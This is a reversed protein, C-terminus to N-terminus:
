RQLVYQEGCSLYTIRSGLLNRLKDYQTLGTCHMTLFRCEPFANLDAALRTIAADEETPSLGHRSLHMGGVVLTPTHGILRTAQRIINVIGRHACGAFLVTHPGEKIILSQEHSFSDPSGEDTLLRESGPPLPTDDPHFPTTFLFAGSPMETTDGCLVLRPNDKLTKDLSIDHLGETHRSFHPVFAKRHIYVRAKKNVALFAALGGGHDNHGHSISAENVEALPIGLREANRVFMPSQGMDFLLNRGDACAIHLSLGHETPFGCRSSDDILSTLTM